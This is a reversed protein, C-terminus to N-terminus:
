EWLPTVGRLIPFGNNITNSTPMKWVTTFDWGAATFNGQDRMQTINLDTAGSSLGSAAQGTGASYYFNNSAIFELLTQTGVISNTNALGSASAMAYNRSLTIQAPSTNINGVLGGNTTGNPCSLSVNAYTDSISSTYTNGGVSGILGGLICNSIRPSFISGKTVVNSLILSGPNAISGAVGGYNYSNLSTGVINATISVNELIVRGSSTSGIVGGGNGSSISSINTTIQSNTLRFGGTSAGIVGGVNVYQNIFNVNIKINNFDIGTVGAGVLGGVTNPVNGDITGHVFVNEMPTACNTTGCQRNGIVLGGRVGEVFLNGNLIHINGTVNSSQSFYHGMLNAVQNRGRINFNKIFLNKFWTNDNGLAGAYGFLANYDRSTDNYVYNSVMMNNGDLRGYLPLASSGIPVFSNATWSALDIHDMLKFYYEGQLFDTPAQDRLRNLQDGNCIIFPDGIAGTGSAMGTPPQAQDCIYSDIYTYIGASATQGDENEVQVTTSTETLSTPTLCTMVNFENRTLGTDCYNSGVKIRAGNGFGDGKVLLMKGGSRHGTNRGLYQVSMINASKVTINAESTNGALDTARILYNIYRNQGFPGKQNTISTLGFGSTVLTDSTTALVDVDDEDAGIKKYVDVSIQGLSTVADVLTWDLKWLKDKVSRASNDIKKIALSGIGPPTLDNIVVQKINNDDCSMNNSQDFACVIYYYVNGEVLTDVDTLSTAVTLNTIVTINPSPDIDPRSKPLAYDSGRKRYLRYRIVSSDQQNDTAASWSVLPNAGAGVTLGSNFVPITLDSTRAVQKYSGPPSLYSTINGSIDYAAVYLNYTKYAPLGQISCSTITNPCHNGSCPCDKIAVAPITTDNDLAYIKFGRYEAWSPPAAWTVTIKGEETPDATALTIGTFGAPPTIDPILLSLAQTNSFNTCNQAGYTPFADDCANVLVFIQENDLYAYDSQKFSAGTSFSGHSKAPLEVLAVPVTQTGKWVKIKYEKIDGAVSPDWTLEVRNQENNYSIGILGNFEPATIDKTILDLQATTNSINGATDRAKVCIGYRSRQALNILDYVVPNGTTYASADVQSVLIGNTCVTMPDALGLTQSYVLYHSAGNANGPQSDIATWGLALVTDQPSGYNLTEIGTFAPATTDGSNISVIATATNSLNGIPDEDIVYYSYDTNQALVENVNLSTAPAIYPSAVNFTQILTYAGVGIQRYVLRRKIAGNAFSWPANLVSRGNVISVGILGLTQPAGRDVLTLARTATNTDCVNSINCARVAYRYPMEDGIATIPISFTNASGNTVTAIPALSFNIDGSNPGPNAYIKYEKTPIGTAVNWQVVVNAGTLTASTIGSFTPPNVAETTETVTQDGLLDKGNKTLVCEYTYTTGEVLGSDLFSTVTPNLFVGALSSNRFVTIKTADSPFEFEVLISNVGQATASVCGNIGSNTSSTADEATEKLCGITSLLLVSLMAFVYLKKRAFASRINYTRASLSEM